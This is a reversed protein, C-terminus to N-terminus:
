LNKMEDIFAPKKKNEIRLRDIIEQVEGEFGKITKMKKLYSVVDRYHNRGMQSEAFPYILERYADFYEKPFRDALEKHYSKLVLISKTVLVEALVKEYMQERLYSSRGASTM